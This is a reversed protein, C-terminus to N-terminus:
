RAEEAEGEDVTHACDPRHFVLVRVSAEPETMTGETPGCVSIM